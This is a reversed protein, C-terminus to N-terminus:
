RREYAIWTDQVHYIQRGAASLEELVKKVDVTELDHYDHWIILGGPRVIEMALESDAHVSSYSHDGDIFVVDMWGIDTPQLDRSGRPKVILEFLPDDKVLWGPEVPTERRQIKCAYEYGLAVDIGVYREITRVERLLMKATRGENVGIETVFRAEVSRLLAVLVEPEGPFM